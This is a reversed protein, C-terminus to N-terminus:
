GVGGLRLALERARAFSNTFTPCTGVLRAETDRTRKSVIDETVSERMAISCHKAVIMHPRRQAVLEIFTAWLCRECCQVANVDVSM